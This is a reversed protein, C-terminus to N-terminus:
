SVECICHTRKDTFRNRDVDLTCRRPMPRANAMELNAVGNVISLASSNLTKSWLPHIFAANLDSISMVKINVLKWSSLGGLTQKYTAAQAQLMAFDSDNLTQHKVATCELAADPKARYM